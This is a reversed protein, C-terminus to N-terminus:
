HYTNTGDRGTLPICAFTYQPDVEAMLLFTRDQQCVDMDTYSFITAPEGTIINIAILLAKIM